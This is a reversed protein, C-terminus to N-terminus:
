CMENMQPLLLASMKKYESKTSQAVVDLDETSHPFHRSRYSAYEQEEGANECNDASECSKWRFETESSGLLGYEICQLLFQVCCSVDKVKRTAKSQQKSKNLSFSFPDKEM